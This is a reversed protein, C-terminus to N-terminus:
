DDAFDSEEEEKVVKKPKSSFTEYMIDIFDRVALRSVQNINNIHEVPNPIRHFSDYERLALTIGIQFETTNAITRLQTFFHEDSERKEIDSNLVPKLKLKKSKM